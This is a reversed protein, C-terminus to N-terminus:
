NGLMRGISIGYGRTPDNLFVHTVAGILKGDQIIPSGSMGQVIGGTERLLDGDTVKLVFNKNRRNDDDTKVISVAYERPAGGDVTAWISARGPHADSGVQVVPLTSCDYDASFNGYIGTECNKDASAVGEERYILGKLEGARGCEGRVVDVVACRFIEGRGVGMPNGSEDAVAHGLSGFRRSGKEIYTVTGIGSISDRILVGLRFRGSAIDEAAEVRKTHEEEGRRVVVEAPKAGQAALAAGIDAASGIRIGGYSLIVDGVQLGGEKAPCRTGDKTLIECVGVVQVGDMELTFGAPMGGLYVERGEASVPVAAGAIALLCCLVLLLWKCKLKRM